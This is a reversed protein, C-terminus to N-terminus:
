KEMVELISAAIEVLVDVINDNKYPVTFWFV